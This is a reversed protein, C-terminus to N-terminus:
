NNSIRSYVQTNKKYILDRSLRESRVKGTLYLRLLNAEKADQTTLKVCVYFGEAAGTNPILKWSNDLCTTTNSDASLWDAIPVPNGWAAPNNPSSYKDGSSDLSPGWRYLVINSSSVKALWTQTVYPSNRPVTFYIIPAALEQNKLLLIYKADSPISSFIFSPIKSLESDTAPQTSVLSTKIENAIFEVLFDSDQEIQVQLESKISDKTIQGLTMGMLSILGFTLVSGILLEVLTFGTTTKSNFKKKM